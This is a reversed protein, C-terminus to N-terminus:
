NWDRIDKAAITLAGYQEEVTGEIVYPGLSQLRPGLRRYEEPFLCVEFVGAEDEFTVFRMAQGRKTQVTRAADQIGLLRVTRGIHRSLSDSRHPPSTRARSRVLAAPHASVPCELILMEYNVRQALSHGPLPPPSPTEPVCRLLVADAPRVRIKGFLSHAQWLLQPRNGGLGDFGGVLILSELEALSCPVRSLFDAVSVFPDRQRQSLLSELTQQSMGRIQGLAVRIGGRELGFEREAHNVHPLHVAIGMRQAESLHVRRPYLGQVNNLAAVMYAAPYHTKLYAEQYAVLGYGAAHARCFSYQNFKAMQAWVPLAVEDPVQNRRTHDRFYQWAKALDEPRRCRKITKRFIDGAAIDLGGLRNAILMADDEYLLIGFTDGLVEALAPHAFEVAELGRARRVFAEQMGNGSAAPRILALAQIVRLVSEPRLMALLRRMAPSELQCCGLTRASQIAAFTAPDRSPLAEVDVAAHGSLLTVTDRIVSLARNGLLDIKVLGVQEIAEMEFQTVVIGKAARELPVYHTLPRDGIVIGGCHIGLHHPQGVVQDALRGLAALTSPPVNVGTGCHPLWRQLPRDDHPARRSIATIQANSLGFAKGVERLAGRRQFTNHTAIMAVQETGYRRYVYDIVTDREKWCFDIDLDPCDSRGTNLFREFPLHYTLPDVNTIGLLYAVISSAGSGRGVVPIGRSRAFRVIDGVVLFYDTFGLRDIVQLEYQLREGAAGARAGYRRALGARCQERLLVAADRGAPLPYRPFIPTGLALELQCAAAIERTAALAEPCNRYRRQMAQPDALHAGARADGTEPTQSLLRNERIATLVRHRPMDEPDLLYVDGTAVQRIGLRRATRELRDYHGPPRGPQVREAWLRDPSVGAALRELLTPDESLIFLGEAGRGLAQALDFDGELQRATVIRCLGAYGNRDRALLTARGSPHAIDVGLIPKLGAARARQYFAIAGYLNNVDTLALAPLGYRLARDVLADVAATGTLLSYNSRLRLPVYSSVM